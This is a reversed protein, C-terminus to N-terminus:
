VIKWMSSDYEVLWIGKAVNSKVGDRTIEKYVVQMKYPIRIRADELGMSFFEIPALHSHYSNEVWNKRMKVKELFLLQNKALKSNVWARTLEKCVVQMKDSIGCVSPLTWKLTALARQRKFLQNAQNHRWVTWSKMERTNRTNVQLRSSVVSIHEQPEHWTSGVELSHILQWFRASKSFM